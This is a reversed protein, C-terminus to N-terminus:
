KSSRGYSLVKEREAAPLAEFAAQAALLADVDGSELAADVQQLVPNDAGLVHGLQWRINNLYNVLRRIDEENHEM